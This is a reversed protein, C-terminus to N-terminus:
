VPNGRPQREVSLCPMYFLLCLLAEAVRHSVIAAGGPAIGGRGMVTRARDM